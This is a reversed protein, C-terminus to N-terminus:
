EEDLLEKIRNAAERPSEMADENGPSIDEQLDGLNEKMQEAKDAAEMSQRILASRNNIEQMKQIEGILSRIQPLCLFLAFLIAALAVVFNAKPSLKPEKEKQQLCYLTWPRGFPTMRCIVGAYFVSIVIWVILSGIVIGILKNQHKEVYESPYAEVLEDSISDFYLTIEDGEGLGFDELGVDELDIYKM